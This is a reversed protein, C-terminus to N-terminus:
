IQYMHEERRPPELRAEATTALGVPKQQNSRCIQLDRVSVGVGKGHPIPELVVSAGKILAGGGSMTMTQWGLTNPAGNATAGVDWDAYILNSEGDWAEVMTSTNARLTASVLFFPVNGVSWVANGGKPDLCPWASLSSDCFQPKSDPPFMSYVDIDAFADPRSQMLSASTVGQGFRM